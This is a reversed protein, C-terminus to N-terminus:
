GLMVWGGVLLFAGGVVVAGLAAVLTWQAAVLFRRMKNNRSIYGQYLKEQADAFSKAAAIDSISGDFGCIAAEIAAPSDTAVYRFRTMSLVALIMSFLLLSLAVAYLALLEHQLAVNSGFFCFLPEAVTLLAVSAISAGALLGDCMRRLSECRAEEMAVTKDVMEWLYEATCDEGKGEYDSM